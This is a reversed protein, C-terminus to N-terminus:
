DFSPSSVRGQLLILPLRPEQKGGRRSLTTGLLVRLSERWFLVSLWMQHGFFLLRCLLALRCKHFPSPPIPLRPCAPSRRSAQVVSAKTAALAHGEVGAAGLLRAAVVSGPRYLKEIHQVQEDAVRSIHVYATRGWQAAAELRKEVAGSAATASASGWGLLMGAGVDVRLVTATPVVDGDACDFGPGGIGCLADSPTAEEGAAGGLTVVHPAASLAITKDVVDVYLVRAALEQGPKYAQQWMSTAPLPLHHLHLTAKFFALFTVALGNSLVSDVTCVVRMGPKVTYLTHTAEKARARSVQAVTCALTVSNAARNLEAVTAWLPTGPHERSLATGAQGASGDSSEFPLFANLGAIGLSVIFGHDEISSVYGSVLSGARLQSVGLGQNTLEPRLSVTVRRDGAKLDVGAGLSAALQLASSHQSTLSEAGVRTVVARVLQGPRLVSTLAHGLANPETVKAQADATPAAHVLESIIENVDSAKCQATLGHPLALTVHDGAVRRIRALVVTGPRLRKFSLEDARYVKSGSTESDVASTLSVSKKANESHSRSKGSNVNIKKKKVGFLHDDTATLASTSRALEAGKGRPFADIEM